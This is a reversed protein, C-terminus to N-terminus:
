LNGESLRITEEVDIVIENLPYLISDKWHIDYGEKRYMTLIESIVTEEQVKTLTRMMDGFDENYEESLRITLPINVRNLGKEIELTILNDINNITDRVLGNGYMRKFDNIKIM